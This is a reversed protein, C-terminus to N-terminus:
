REAIRESSFSRSGGEPTTSFASARKSANGRMSPGSGPTPGGSELIARSRSTARAPRLTTLTSPVAQPSPTCPLPQSAASPRTTVFAWTTAPCSSVM